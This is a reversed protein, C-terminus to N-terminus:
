IMNWSLGRGAWVLMPRSPLMRNALAEHGSRGPAQGLHDGWVLLGREPSGTPVNKRMAPAELSMLGRSPMDEWPGADAGTRSRFVRTGLSELFRNLRAGASDGCGALDRYPEIRHGREVGSRNTRAMGSGTGGDDSGSAEKAADVALPWEFVRRYSHYWHEHPAAGPHVSDAGTTAGTRAFLQRYPLGWAELFDSEERRVDPTPERSAATDMSEARQQMFELEHLMRPDDQAARQIAHRTAAQRHDFAPDKELLGVAGRLLAFIVLAVAGIAGVISLIRNDVWFGLALAAAPVVFTLAWAQVRDNLKGATRLQMGAQMVKGALWSSFRALLVVVLAAVGFLGLTSWGDHRTLAGAALMGVAAMAALLFGALRRGSGSGAPQWSSALPRDLWEFSFREGAWAGENRMAIENM